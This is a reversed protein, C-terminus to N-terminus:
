KKIHFMNMLRYKTDPQYLQIFFLLTFNYKLSCLSNETFGYLAMAVVAILYVYQKRKILEKTMIYNLILFILSGLIGFVLLLQVYGSDVVLYQYISLAGEDRVSGLLKIESNSMLLNALEFRNSLMNDLFLVLSQFKEAFGPIKNLVGLLNRTTSLSLFVSLFMLIFPLYKGGIELLREIHFYKYCFAMAWILTSIVLGTRSGTVVFSAFIIGLLLAFIKGNVKNWYICLYLLIIVTITLMLLNGHSFGLVARGAYFDGFGVFSAAMVLLTTIIKEYFTIKLVNNLNLDKIGYITVILSLLRSDKTIYYNYGFMVMLVMIVALKGMSHRNNLIIHIFTIGLAAILILFNVGLNLVTDTFGYYLNILVFAIYILINKKSIEIQM